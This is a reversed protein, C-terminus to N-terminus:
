ALLSLIEYAKVRTTQFTIVEGPGPVSLGLDRAVARDKLWTGVLVVIGEDKLVDQAGGNSRIRKMPDQQRALTEIALRPIVRGVAVRLLETVRAQRTKQAFIKQRDEDNLSALFSKPFAARDVLWDTNSRGQSSVSLKGDKNAGHTLNDATMRLLGVSFLQDAENSSILLCIENFAESPIMWTSGITNKVDVEEGAIKLDLKDGWPLDLASRAIIEVKTGIYAKETSALQSLSFRGTRGGDIVEEIAQGIVQRFFDEPRQRVAILLARKVKQVLQDESAHPM